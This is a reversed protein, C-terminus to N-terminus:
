SIDNQNTIQCCRNSSYLWDFLLQGAFSPPILPPFATARVPPGAYRPM